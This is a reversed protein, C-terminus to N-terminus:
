VKLVTRTTRMHRIKMARDWIARLMQYKTTLRQKLNREYKRAEEVMLYHVLSKSCPQSNSPHLDCCSHVILARLLSQSSSGSSDATALSGLYVVRRWGYRDSYSVWSNDWVLLSNARTRKGEEGEVCQAFSHMSCHEAGFGERRKDQWAELPWFKSQM